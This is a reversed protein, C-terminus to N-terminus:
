YGWDRLYLFDIGVTRKSLKAILPGRRKFQMTRILKWVREVYVRSFGAEIAEEPSYREDVLLYLLQDVEAYTLGMEDEDTQGQWLDASPAKDLIPQPVGLTQSLQRVQTKYLDGVPNLASAMDGFLTGYGLLLETKNSTGVVLGQHAASRDYLVIMRARAMLNGKRLPTMDPTRAILPDVMDSIEVTESHVGLADIVLQAHELSDPSSTRYPMRVAYVNHAGIAQAVLYCALASDIGGSLGIVAHEIGVKRIEDRLFTKLVTRALDPNINLKHTLDPPTM